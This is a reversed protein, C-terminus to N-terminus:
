AASVGGGEPNLRLLGGTLTASGVLRLDPFQQARVSPVGGYSSPLMLLFVLVIAWCRHVATPEWWRRMACRRKLSSWARGTPHRVKQAGPLRCVMRQFGFM